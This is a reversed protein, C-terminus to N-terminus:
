SEAKMGMLDLESGRARTVPCGELKRLIDCVAEAGRFAGEAGVVDAIM